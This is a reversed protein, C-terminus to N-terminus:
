LGFLVRGVGIHLGVSHIAGGNEPAIAAMYSISAQYIWGAGLVGFIGTRVSTGATLGSRRDQGPSRTSAYLLDVGFAVFPVAAQPRRLPPKFGFSIRLDYLNHRQLQPEDTATAFFTGLSLMFPEQTAVVGYELGLGSSRATDGPHGPQMMVTNLLIGGAADARATEAGLGSLLCVIIAISGAREVSDQVRWRPAPQM